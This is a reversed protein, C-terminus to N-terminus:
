SAACNAARKAGTGKPMLADRGHSTDQKRGHVLSGLRGSCHHSLWRTRLGSPKIPRRCSSQPSMVGHDQERPTVTGCANHEGHEGNKHGRQLLSDLRVNDFSSPCFWMGLHTASKEPKCRPLRARHSPGNCKSQACRSVSGRLWVDVLTHSNAAHSTIRQGM